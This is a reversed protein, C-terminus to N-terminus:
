MYNYELSSYNSFHKLNFIKSKITNFWYDPKKMLSNFELRSYIYKDMYEKSYTNCGIIYWMDNSLKDYEKKIKKNVLSLKILNKTDLFLLINLILDNTLDM